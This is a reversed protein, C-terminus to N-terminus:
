DNFDVRRGRIVANSNLITKLANYYTEHEFALIREKFCTEDKCNSVDVATQLIIPGTDVGSDVFHVTCGSVKVGYEFAQKQADKGKFSPLLSPHINIIKMKFSDIINKSIIKMFGALLIIDVSEDKLIKLIYEENETSMKWGSLTNPIIFTKVNLRAAKAIGEAQVNDSIVIFEVKLNDKKSKTILSEMNTGSGSIFIAIKKM